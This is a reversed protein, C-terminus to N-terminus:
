VKEPTKTKNSSPTTFDLRKVGSPSSTRAGTGPTKFLNFFNRPSPTQYPLTELNSNTSINLEDTNLQPKPQPINLIEQMMEERSKVKVSLSSVAYNLYRSLMPDKTRSNIEKLYTDAGM